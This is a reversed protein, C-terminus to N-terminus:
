EEGPLDSLREALPLHHGTAASPSLYDDDLSHKKAVKSMKAAKGAQFTSFTNTLRLIVKSESTEGILFHTEFTVFHSECM